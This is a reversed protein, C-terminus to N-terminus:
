GVTIYSDIWSKDACFVSRGKGTHIQKFYIVDWGTLFQFSDLVIGAPDSFMENTFPFNVFM